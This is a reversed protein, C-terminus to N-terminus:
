AEEEDEGEEEDNLGLLEELYNANHEIAHAAINLLGRISDCTRIGEPVLDAIYRVKDADERLADITYFVETTPANANIKM